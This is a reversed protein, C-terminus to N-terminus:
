NGSNALRASRQTEVYHAIERAAIAHGEANPHDGDYPIFLSEHGRYAQRFAPDLDLMPIGYRAALEQLRAPYSSNPYDRELALPIPFSVLLLRFGQEVSLAVLHQLAEDIRAWGADVDRSLRGALVDARLATAAQETPSGRLHRINEMVTYLLRSQKLLNRVGLGFESWWLKEWAGPERPTQGAAILWGKPSVRVDSKRSLDNWCVGVIVWDPRYRPGEHELYTVEQLTNYAPVGANIVETDIGRARLLEAVQASVIRDDDVGFGFVISDGIFLLRIADTSREYPVIEGRLGRENITVAKDATFAQQNPQLAFILRSDARYRVQPDRWLLPAPFLARAMLELVLLGVLVSIAALLLNVRLRTHTSRIM